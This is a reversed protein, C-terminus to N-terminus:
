VKLDISQGYSWQDQEPLAHLVARLRAQREGHLLVEEPSPRPDAQCDSRTQDGDAVRQAHVRARQKLGLNHAVRFIWGRLNNRPKNASLHQFLGLFVEQVVEEGDHSNLGLVMLYRLLHSRFQDFLGVVRKLGSVRLWQAGFSEINIADAMLFTGAGAVLPLGFGDLL